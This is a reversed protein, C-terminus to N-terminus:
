RHGGLDPHRDLRARIHRRARHLRSMVTGAPVGLAAAAEDYTLGAIDVLAVVRALKPSQHRLAAEVRADFGQGTALDEASAGPPGGTSGSEPIEGTPLLTPRRRRHRNVDTNRLITLLWARPHRGDFGDLFRYAHLLTDQM